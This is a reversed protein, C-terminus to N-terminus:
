KLGIAFSQRLFALLRQHFGHPADFALRGRTRRDLLGSFFKQVSGHCVYRFYPGCWGIGGLEGRKLGVDERGVPALIPSLKRAHFAEDRDFQPDVIGGVWDPSIEGIGTQASAKHLGRGGYRRASIHFDPKPQSVPLDPDFADDEGAYDSAATRREPDTDPKSVQARSLTLVQPVEQLKDLTGGSAVAALLGVQSFELALRLNFNNTCRIGEQAQDDLRM